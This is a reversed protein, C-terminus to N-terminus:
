GAPGDARPREPHLSELFRVLDGVRQNALHSLDPFERGFLEELRVVVETLSVSDAGLDDMFATQLTVANLPLNFQEAIVKRVQLEIDAIRM